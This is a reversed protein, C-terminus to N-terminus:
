PRPRFRGRASARIRARAIGALSSCALVFLAGAASRDRQVVRCGCTSSPAPAVGADIAAADPAGADPMWGADPGGPTISRLFVHNTVVRPRGTVVLEVRYFEESSGAFVREDHDWDSGMVDIPAEREGDHVFRITSGIPAGTVHVHLTTVDAHITDTTSPDLDPSSLEVMPDASSELKVVTRGRRVGELIAATSLESAWVMTTPSGIASDFTGTGTGASHDDSGGVAVVHHGALLLDEWMTTAHGYFAVGTVHYAGTQVEMADVSSGDLM